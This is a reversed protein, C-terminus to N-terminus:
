IRDTIFTEPGIVSSPDVHAERRGTQEWLFTFIFNNWDSLEAIFELEYLQIKNRHRWRIVWCLDPILVAAPKIKDPGAPSSQVPSSWMAWMDVHLVRHVWRDAITRRDNMSFYSDGSWFSLYSWTRCTADSKMLRHWVQSMMMVPTEPDDYCSIVRKRRTLTDIFHAALVVFVSLSRIDWCKKNNSSNNNNYINNWINYVKKIVNLKMDTIIKLAQKSRKNKIM